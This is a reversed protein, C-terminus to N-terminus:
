ECDNVEYRRRLTESIIIMKMLARLACPTILMSATGERWEPGADGRHPPPDHGPQRSTVFPMAPEHFRQLKAILGNLFYCSNGEWAGSPPIGRHVTYLARSDAM